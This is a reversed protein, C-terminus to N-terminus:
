KQQQSSAAGGGLRYLIKKGGIEVVVTDGGAQRVKAGKLEADDVLSDLYLTMTTTTGREEVRAPVLARQSQRQEVGFSEPLTSAPKQRLRFEQRPGARADKAADAKLVDAEKKFAGASQARAGGSEDLTLANSTTAEVVGESWYGPEENRPAAAARARERDIGAAPAPAAVLANDASQQGAPASVDRRAAEGAPAPAAARSKVNHPVGSVAPAAPPANDASQQGAPASVDRRAAEGAPTRTQDVPSPPALRPGRGEIWAVYLGSGVVLALSAAAAMIRWRRRPRELAAIRRGISRKLEERGAMRVGRAIVLERRLAEGCATCVSVHADVEDRDEADLTGLAYREMLEDSIHAGDTM